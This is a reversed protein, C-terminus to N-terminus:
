VGKRDLTLIRDPLLERHCQGRYQGLCQQRGNCSSQDRGRLKQHDTVTRALVNSPICQLVQMLLDRDRPLATGEGDLLREGAQYAVTEDITSLRVRARHM